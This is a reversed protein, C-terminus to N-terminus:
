SFFRQCFPQVRAWANSKMCLELGCALKLNRNPENENRTMNTHSIKMGYIYIHIDSHMNHIVKMHAKERM